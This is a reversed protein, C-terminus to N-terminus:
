IIFQSYELERIVKDQILGHKRAEENKKAASTGHETAKTCTIEETAYIRTTKTIM